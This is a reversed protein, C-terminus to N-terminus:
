TRITNCYELIKLNLQSSDDVPLLEITNAMSCNNVIVYGLKTSAGYYGFYMRGNVYTCSVTIKPQAAAQWTNHYRLTRTTNSDVHNDLWCNDIVTESYAGCGGGIVNVNATDYSDIVCDIIKNTFRLPIEAETVDDHIAYWNNYCTARLGHIEANTGMNFLCFRRDNDSAYSVDFDSLDFSVNTNPNFIIKRNDVWLGLAFKGAATRDYGNIFFNNDFRSKFESVIDFNGDYVYIDGDTEILADLISVYAGYGAASVITYKDKILNDIFIKNYALETNLIINSEGIKAQDLFINNCSCRMYYANEPVNVTLCTAQSQVPDAFSIFTKTSDYFCTSFMRASELKKIGKIYIYDTASFSDSSVFAGNDQKIYGSLVNDKDFLNAHRWGANVLDSKVADINDNVASIDSGMATIGARAITDKATLPAIWDTASSGTELQITFSANYSVTDLNIGIYVDTTEVLTLAGAGNRIIDGEGKQIYIGTASAPFNNVSFYYSGAPLTFDCLHIGRGGTVSPTGSVSITGNDYIVTADRVDSVKKYYPLINRTHDGMDDVIEGINGRVSDGASSYTLGDFGVRIDLLEADPDVSAGDLIEDIRANITSDASIRSATENGIAGTNANIKGLLYQDGDNRTAIEEALRNNLSNIDATVLNFKATVPKNAVPNISNINLETDTKFPTLFLWYDNNSIDIGAPVAKKAIYFTQTLEDYVINNAPYDETITWIIPDHFKITNYDFFNNYADTLEELRKIIFGLDGDYSRTHPFEFYAM